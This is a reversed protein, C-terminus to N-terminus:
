RERLNFTARMPRSDQGDTWLALTFTTSGLFRLDGTGSRLQGIWGGGYLGRPVQGETHVSFQRPLLIDFTYTGRSPIEEDIVASLMFEIGICRQYAIIGSLPFATGPRETRDEISGTFSITSDTATSVHLNSNVSFVIPEGSPGMACASRQRATIALRRIATSRSLENRVTVRLRDVDRDSGVLVSRIRVPRPELVVSGLNITAQNNSYRVLPVNMSYVQFGEANVTVQVRKPAGYFETECLVGARKHIAPFCQHPSGTSDQLQILARTLDQEYGGLQLAPNLAGELTIKSFGRQAYGQTLPVILLIAATVKM